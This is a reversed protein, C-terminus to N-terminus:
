SLKMEQAQIQLALLRSFFRCLGLNGGMLWFGPHGSPRWITRFEGEEDFGWVDGVRDAVSDGFMERTQTRMNQYGTAIVVEDAEVESGDEFRLGHPLVKAVGQGQKVKIKGDIILQSAGVDIYYGGGRQFYKMTLGTDDPGKDTKFGAKELGALTAADNEAQKNVTAVEAAKFIESPQGYVWVDADDVPPGGESYIPNLAIETISNSSVVATSSRQVITVEYGNEYYDQAIDHSSNCAGIVVAKKGTSDPRAGPFESSHGLFDGKFDNLGDFAPLNKKGSHGTAQIIHHPHLTRKETSGDARRRELTVTWQKSADDWSTSTMNTSTWVNLELLKVYTEFFEALKDKPSFIPWHAPFPLYPMHDYWVPDHLVLQHYRNRWNDGVRENRDIVLTDVDLMKLQAASTLGGQGAGVVLVAPDRGEFKTDATRRDHWNKRGKNEGHAVGQPRKRGLTEESGSLHRLVTYITFIKWEGSADETLRIIGQGTGVDTTCKIFFEIGLPSLHPARFASSRDIEISKLRCGGQLFEAIKKQGKWTRLDWSLCLHDRWYSNDADFLRTIGQVDKSSLTQNFHNVFADAIANVDTPPSKPPSPLKGVPINVSGPEVRQSSPPNAVTAM